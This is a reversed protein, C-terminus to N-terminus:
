KDLKQLVESITPITTFAGKKSITISAAACGISIARLEPDEVSSLKMLEAVFFGLFTDGAGTTDVVQCPSAPHVVFKEAGDNRMFLAAVGKESMTMIISEVCIGESLKTLFERINNLNGEEGYVQEYIMLAELKNMVLMNTPFQDKWLAGASAKPPIPAPNFITYMGRVQAEKLLAGIDNMENQVVLLDGPKADRLM